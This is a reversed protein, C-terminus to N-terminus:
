HVYWTRLLVLDYSQLAEKLSSVSATTVFRIIPKMISPLLFCCCRYNLSYSLSLVYRAGLAQSMSLTKLLSGRFNLQIEALISHYQAQGERRTERKHWCYLERPEIVFLDPLTLLFLNSQLKKRWNSNLCIVEGGWWWLLFIIFAFSLLPLATCCIGLLFPQWSGCCVLQLQCPIMSSDSSERNVSYLYQVEKGTFLNVSM